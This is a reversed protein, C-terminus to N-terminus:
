RGTFDDRLQDVLRRDPRPVIIRSAGDEALRDVEMELRGTPAGARSANGNNRVYRAFVELGMFFDDGPPAAGTAPSSETVEFGWHKAERM